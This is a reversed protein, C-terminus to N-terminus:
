DTITKNFVGDEIPPSGVIKVWLVGVGPTDLDDDPNEARWRQRAQEGTEDVNQIVLVFRRTGIGAKAELKELRSSLKTM